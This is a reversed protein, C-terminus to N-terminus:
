HRCGAQVESRAPSKLWQKIVQSGCRWLRSITKCFTLKLAPYGGGLLLESTVLRYEFSNVTRLATRYSQVSRCSEDIGHRRVDFREFVKHNEVVEQRLSYIHQVVHVSAGFCCGYRSTNEFSSLVIHREPQEGVKYEQWLFPFPHVVIAEGTHTDWDDWSSSL